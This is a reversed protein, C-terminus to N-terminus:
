NPYDVTGGYNIVMTWPLQFRLDGDLWLPNWLVFTWMLGQWLISANFRVIWGCLKSINELYCNLIINIVIYYLIIKVIKEFFNFNINSVFIKWLELNEVLIFRIICYRVNTFYYTFRIREQKLPHLFIQPSPSPPLWHGESAMKNLLAYGNIDSTPIALPLSPQM